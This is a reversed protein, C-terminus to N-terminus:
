SNKTLTFDGKTHRHGWDVKITGWAYTSKANVTGVIKIKDGHKKLTFGFYGPKQQLNGTWRGSYDRDDITITGNFSKQDFNSIDFDLDYKLKFPFVKITYRGDWNGELSKPQAPAAPKKAAARKKVAATTSHDATVLSPSPYYLNSYTLAPISASLLSRGELSEVMPPHKLM